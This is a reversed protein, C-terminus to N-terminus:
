AWPPSFGTLLQLVALPSEQNDQPCYSTFQKKESSNYNLCYLFYPPNVSIFHIKKYLYVSIIAYCYKDIRNKKKILSSSSPM